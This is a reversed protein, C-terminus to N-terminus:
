PSAWAVGFLQSSPGVDGILVPVIYATCPWGRLLASLVHVAVDLLVVYHIWLRLGLQVFAAVFSKQALVVSKLELMRQLM